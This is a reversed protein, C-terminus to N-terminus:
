NRSKSAETAVGSATEPEREQAPAGGVTGRGGTKGQADDKDLARQNANEPQRPDVTKGQAGSKIGDLGTDSSKNDRLESSTQGQVPKGVGTNVSGSTAGPMDLASAQEADAEISSSDRSQQSPPTTDTPNPKFTRDAPATGAPLTEANFEPVADNGVLKGPQHGGTQMPEDRGIRSSFEGSGGNQQQGALADTNRNASGTKENSAM